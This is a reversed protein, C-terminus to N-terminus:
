NEGFAAEVVANVELATCVNIDSKSLRRINIMQPTRQGRSSQAVAFDLANAIDAGAIGVFDQNEDPLITRAVFRAIRALSLDKGCQIRRVIGFVYALWIEVRRSGRVKRGMESLFIRQIQRRGSSFLILLECSLNQVVAVSRQIAQYCIEIVKSFHGSNSRCDERRQFVAVCQPRECDASSFNHARFNAGLKAALCNENGEISQCAHQDINGESELPNQPCGGDQCYEVVNQDRQSKERQQM